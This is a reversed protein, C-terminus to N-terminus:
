ASRKRARDSITRCEDSCFAELKSRHRRFPEQCTRCLGMGAYIVKREIATKGGRIGVIWRCEDNGLEEYMAAELCEDSVPCGACVKKAARVALNDGRRPFFEDPDHDLCAAERRWSM